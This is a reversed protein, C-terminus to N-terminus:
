ELIRSEIFEKLKHAEKKVSLTREECKQLYSEIFSLADHLYMKRYDSYDEKKSSFYAFWYDSLPYDWISNDEGESEAFYSFLRYADDINGWEECITEFINFYDEEFDCNFDPSYVAKTITIKEETSYKDSNMMELFRNQPTNSAIKATYEFDTKLASKNNAYDKLLYAQYYVNWKTNLLNDKYFVNWSDTIYLQKKSNHRLNFGVTETWENETHFRNVTLIYNDDDVLSKTWNVRLYEPKNITTDAFLRNLNEKGAFNLTYNEGGKFFFMDYQAGKDDAVSVWYDDYGDNDMDAVYTSSVERADKPLYHSMKMGFINYLDVTKWRDSIRESLRYETYEENYDGPMMSYFEKEITIAVPYESETVYESKLSSDFIIHVTKQQKSKNEANFKLKVQSYSSKAVTMETLMLLEKEGGDPYYEMLASFKENDSNPIIHFFEKENSLINAVSVRQHLSGDLAFSPLTYNHFDNFSTRDFKNILYEDVQMYNGDSLKRDFAMTFLVERANAQSRVVFYYRENENSLCFGNLNYDYIIDYVGGKDPWNLIDPNLSTINFKGNKTVEFLGLYHQQSDDNIKYLSAVYSAIGDLEGVKMWTKIAINESGENLEKVVKSVAENRLEDDTKKTNCSCFFLSIMMLVPITKLVIRRLESAEIIKQGFSIISVTLLLLTFTIKM